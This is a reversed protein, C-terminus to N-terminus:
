DTISFSGTRRVANYFAMITRPKGRLYPVKMKVIYMGPAGSEHEIGVVQAEVDREFSLQSGAIRSVTHFRVKLPQSPSYAYKLADLLASIGPGQTIEFHMSKSQSPATTTM